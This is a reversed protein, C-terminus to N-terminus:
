KSYKEILSQVKEPFEKSWSKLMEKADGSEMLSQMIKREVEENLQDIKNENVLANTLEVLNGDKDIKIEGNWSNDFLYNGYHL